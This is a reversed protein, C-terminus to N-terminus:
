PSFSTLAGSLFRWAWFVVIVVFAVVAARSVSRTLRRGPEAVGPPPRLPPLPPVFALANQSADPSAAPTPTAAALMPETSALRDDRWRAWRAVKDLLAGVVSFLWAWTAPDLTSVERRTYLFLWDDVIEVDVAAAHDIFRAMIDPTFLYLADSEYGVPVHLAFYDDFDGELSLRQDRDFTAPLNSIGFLGNNNTADLVIHPLPADLKVAVYGWRHTSRNKGSGTTFRYNGFEVPRPREGRVLDTAVRDTGVQFIMGPLVPDRRHPEYSMANARAFRDLRYWRTSTGLGGRALGVIGLAVVGVVIGVPVFTVLAGGGAQSALSAISTLISGFVGLVVLGVVVAFAIPIIRFGDAGGFLGPVRGSARLEGAFERVAARDVPEILPRADFGWGAGGIGASPEPGDGVPEAAM